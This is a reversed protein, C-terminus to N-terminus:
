VKDLEEHEFAPAMLRAESQPAGRAEAFQRWRRTVAGCASIEAEAEPITLLFDDAAERLLDLSATGDDLSINTSLIRVAEPTPNVDYAPSLVWGQAARLFGHNRLHDDTNSVLITFALRRFLERYDREPAGGHGAIADVLELYSGREGDRHDTLSMASVFPIRGSGDRDFRRSLLVPAGLVEILAHDAVTIGAAAAMDLAIAEWREVSYTDTERPLKAISLAGHRDLVSVKPRGGGLSSGPALILRLDEDDEEGRLLRRSAHLLDGLVVLGPVGAGPPAQFVGGVRFRLAGLRIEDSVGLLFDTEQLARATRGEREANRRERRRMLLRGWTDPASDGLVGFMDRGDPPAFPGPTMPLSPAIPFADPDSLWAPDYEFTVRERGRGAHRRLLGVTKHDGRDLFVEVPDSM